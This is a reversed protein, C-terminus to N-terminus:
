VRMCRVRPWLPLDWNELWINMDFFDLWSEFFEFILFGQWENRAISVNMWISNWGLKAPRPVWQRESCLYLHVCERLPGFAPPCTMWGNATPARAKRSPPVSTRTNQHITHFSQRILYGNANIMRISIYTFACMKVIGFKHACGEGISVNDCDYWQTLKTVTKHMNLLSGVDNFLGGDNNQATKHPGKLANKPWKTCTPWNQFIYLGALLNSPTKKEVPSLM